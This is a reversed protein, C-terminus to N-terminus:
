PGMVKITYAEEVSINEGTNEFDKASEIALRPTGAQKTNVADSEYDKSTYAEEVIIEEKTNEIDDEGHNRFVIEHETSRNPRKSDDDNSEEQHDQTEVEDICAASELDTFFNSERGHISRAANENAANNHFDDSAVDGGSEPGGFTNDGSPKHSDSLRPLPDTM